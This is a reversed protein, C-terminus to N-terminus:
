RSPRSSIISADTGPHLYLRLQLPFPAVFLIPAIYSASSFFTTPRNVVCRPSVKSLASRDPGHSYLCHAPMQCSLSPMQSSVRGSQFAVYLPILLLSIMAFYPAFQARSLSLSSVTAIARSCKPSAAVVLIEPALLSYCCGSGVQHHLNSKGKGWM